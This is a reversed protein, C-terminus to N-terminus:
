SVINISIKPVDKSAIRATTAIPFIQTSFRCGCLRLNNREDSKFGYTTNTAGGLKSFNRRLFIRLPSVNLTVLQLQLFM